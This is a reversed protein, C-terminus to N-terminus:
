VWTGVGPRGLGCGGARCYEPGAREAEPEWVEETESWRNEQMDETLPVGIQRNIGCFRFFRADREAKEVGRASGLYVLVDPKWVRLQWWLRLLEKLSRTRAEYRFYGQVLGNDGLIAAAAPAKVNVPFNTM